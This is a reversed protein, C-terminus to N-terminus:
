EWRMRLCKGKMGEGGTVKHIATTVPTPSPLYQHCDDGCCRGEVECESEAMTLIHSWMFVASYYIHVIHVCSHIHSGFTWLFSKEM